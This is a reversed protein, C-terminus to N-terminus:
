DLFKILWKRSLKEFVKSISTVLSNAKYNQPQFRDGKKHIPVVKPIKLSKSFCQEKLCRNVFKAIVTDNAPSCFKLINNNIGDHGSSKKNRMVKILKIVEM